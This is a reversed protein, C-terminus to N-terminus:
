WFRLLDAGVLCQRCRSYPPIVHLTPAVREKANTLTWPSIHRCSPWNYMYLIDPFIKSCNKVKSQKCTSNNTKNDKLKFKAMHKKATKIIPKSQNCNTLFERTIGSSVKMTDGQSCCVSHAFLKANGFNYLPRASSIPHSSLRSQSGFGPLPMTCPQPKPCDSKM